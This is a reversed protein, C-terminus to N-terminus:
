VGQIDKIKLTTMSQRHGRLKRHGKRTKHKFVLVKKDKDTSLVEASVSANEVYPTGFVQNDDKIVALVKDLKVETGPEADLKEVKINQGAEVKYQKGSTEVYAYMDTEEMFIYNFM